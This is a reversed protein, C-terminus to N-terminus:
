MGDVLLSKNRILKFNSNYRKAKVGYLDVETAVTTM